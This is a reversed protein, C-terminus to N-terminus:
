FAVRDSVGRPPLEGGLEPLAVSGGPGAVQMAWGADPRWVEIRPANQSVIPLSQLRPETAHFALKRGRDNTMTVPALAEVIVLPDDVFGTPPM